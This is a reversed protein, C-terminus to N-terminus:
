RGRGNGTGVPAPTLGNANETDYLVHAVSRTPGGARVATAAALVLGVSVIGVWALSLNSPSGWVAWATLALGMVVMAAVVYVRILHSYPREM